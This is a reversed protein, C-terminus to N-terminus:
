DGPLALAPWRVSWNLPLQNPAPSFASGRNRIAMSTKMSCSRRSSTFARPGRDVAVMASTLCISRRLLPKAPNSFWYRPFRSRGAQRRTSATRCRPGVESASPAMSRRAGAACWSRSMASRAARTGSRRVAEDSTNTLELRLDPASDADLAPGTWPTLTCRLPGVDKEVAAADRQRQFRSAHRRLLQERKSTFNFNPLWSLDSTVLHCWIVGLVGAALMFGVAVGLLNSLKRRLESM